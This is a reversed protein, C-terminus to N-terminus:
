SHENNQMEWYSAIAAAQSEAIRATRIEYELKLKLRLREIAEMHQRKVEGADSPPMHSTKPTSSIGRLPTSERPCLLDDLSASRPLLSESLYSSIDPNRPQSTHLAKDPGSLCADKNKLEALLKSKEEVLTTERERLRLELESLQEEMLRKQRMLQMETLDKLLCLQELHRRESECHQLEVQRQTLMRHLHDLEELRGMLDEQVKLATVNAEEKALVKEPLSECIPSNQKGSDLDRILNILDNRQSQLARIQCSFSDRWHKSDHDKQELKVKLQLVAAEQERLKARLTSNESELMRNQELCIALRQKVIELETSNEPIYKNCHLSGLDSLPFNSSDSASRIFVLNSDTKNMVTNKAKRDKHLAEQLLVNERSYLAKTEKMDRKLKHLEEALERDQLRIPTGQGSQESSGDDVPSAIPLQSDNSSSHVSLATEGDYTVNGQLATSCHLLDSSEYATLFHASLEDESDLNENGLRNEFDHMKNLNDLSDRVEVSKETEDTKITLTINEPYILRNLDRQLATIMRDKTLLSAKMLQIQEELMDQNGRNQQDNEFSEKPKQASKLKTIEQELVALASEKEVLMLQLHHVVRDNSPNQAQGTPNEVLDTQTFVTRQPSAGQSELRSLELGSDLSLQMRQANQNTGSQKSNEAELVKQINALEEQLHKKEEDQAMLQMELAEYKQKIQLNVTQMSELETPLKVELTNKNAASSLKSNENLFNSGKDFTELSYQNEVNQETDSFFTNEQLLQMQKQVSENSDIKINNDSEESTANSIDRNKTFEFDENDSGVDSNALCFFGENDGLVSGLDLFLTLDSVSVVEEGEARRELLWQTVRNLKHRVEQCDQRMCRGDFVEWISRHEPLNRGISSGAQAEDDGSGIMASAMLPTTLEWELPLDQSSQQSMDELEELFRERASNTDSVESRASLLEDGDLDTVKEGGSKVEVAPSSVEGTPTADVASPTLSPSVSRAERNNLRSQLEHQVKTHLGRAQTIEIQHLLVDRVEALEQNEKHLQEVTEGLNEQGEAIDPMVDDKTDKPSSGTSLQNHNRLSSFPGQRLMKLDKAHRKEMEKRAKQLAKTFKHEWEYKVAQVRHAYNQELEQEFNQQKTAFNHALEVEQQRLKGVYHEELEDRVTQIKKELEASTFLKSSSSEEEINALSMFNESKGKTNENPIFQQEYCFNQEIQMKLSEDKSVAPLQNNSFTFQQQKLGQHSPSKGVSLNPPWVSPRIQGDPEEMVFIDSTEPQFGEEVESEQIPHINLVHMDDIVHENEIEPQFGEVEEEVFDPEENIKETILVPTRLPKSQEAVFGEIVPLKETPSFCDDHSLVSVSPYPPCIDEVGSPRCENTENRKQMHMQCKFSNNEELLAAIKNQLEIKETDLSARSSEAKSFEIDNEVHIELVKVKEKLQSNNLKLDRIKEEYEEKLAEAYKSHASLNEKLISLENNLENTDTRHRDAADKLVAMMEEERQNATDKLSLIEDELSNNKLELERRMTGMEQLKSELVLVNSHNIDSDDMMSARLRDLENTAVCCKDELEYLRSEYSKELQQTEKAHDIKMEELHRKLRDVELEAFRRKEEIDSLQIEFNQELSVREKVSKSQLENIQRKQEAVSKELSMCNDELESTQIEHLRKLGAVACEHNSTTKSLEDKFRIVDSNSAQLSLELEALQHEYVDKSSSAKSQLSELEKELREKQQESKIIKEEVQSIQLEFMEKLEDKGQHVNRTEEALQCTLRKTKAEQEALKEQMDGMCSDFNSKLMEAEKHQIDISAKATELEEQLTAISTDRQDVESRLDNIEKQHMDIDHKLDFVAAEKGELVQAMQTLKENLQKIEVAYQTNTLDQNDLDIELGSINAKLTENEAQLSELQALTAAQEEMLIEFKDSVKKLSVEGQELKDNLGAIEFIKEDALIAQDVLHSEKEQVINTLHSLQGEMRSLEKEMKELKELTIEVSQKEENVQGILDSVKGEKQALLNEMEEMQSMMNAQQNASEKLLLETKSALLDKEQQVTRHQENLEQVLDDKEKIEEELKAMQSAQEVLAEDKQQLENSLSSALGQICEVNQLSCTLKNELESIHVDKETGVLRLRDQADKLAMESTHLSDTVEAAQKEFYEREKELKSCQNKIEMLEVQLKEKTQIETQLTEESTKMKELMESYAISLNEHECEVKVYQQKIENLEEEVIEKNKTTVELTQVNKELKSQIESCASQLIKDKNEAELVQEKRQILEEELDCKANTACQLETETKRLKEQIETYAMQLLEHKEEIESLQQKFLALEAVTNDKEQAIVQLAQETDGLKIQAESHATCYSEQINEFEQIHQKMEILEGEVCEKEKMTHELATETEKCKSAIAQTAQKSNSRELDLDSELQSVLSRLIELDNDKKSFLAKLGEAGFVDQNTDNSASDYVERLAHLEAELTDVKEKNSRNSTTLDEIEVDKENVAVSLQNYQSEISTLSEKMDMEKVFYEDNKNKLDVLENNVEKLEKEKKFAEGKLDELEINKESVTMTLNAVKEEINQQAELIEAERLRSRDKVGVLEQQLNIVIDSLVASQSFKQELLDELEGELIQIKGRLEWLDCESLNRQEKECQLASELQKVESSLQENEEQFTKKLTSCIRQQEELAEESQQLEVEKEQVIRQLRQWQSVTNELQAQLEEQCKDREALQEEVKRLASLETQHREAESAKVELSALKAESEEETRRHEQQLESLETQTEFLSKETEKLNETLEVVMKEAIKLKTRQDELEEALSNVQIAFAEYENKSRELIMEEGAAKLDKEPIVDCSPINVTHDVQSTYSLLKTRISQMMSDVDAKEQKAIELGQELEKNKNLVEERHSQEMKLQHEVNDCKSRLTEMASHMAEMQEEMQDNYYHWESQEVGHVHKASLLEDQLSVIQDACKTCEEEKLKLADKSTKLLLELSEKDAQLADFNASLINNSNINRESAELQETIESLKEDKSSLAKKMEVHSSQFSDLMEEMQMLKEDQKSMLSNKEQLAAQLEAVKIKEAKTAETANQVAAESKQIISQLENIKNNLADTDVSYKNELEVYHKESQVQKDSEKDHSLKLQELEAKMKDFDVSSLHEMSLKEELNCKELELERLHSLCESYKAALTDHETQLSGYGSLCHNLNSVQEELEEKVQSLVQTQSLESEHAQRLENLELELDSLRQAQEAQSKELQMELRSCATQLDDKEAKIADQSNLLASIQASQSEISSQLVQERLAREQDRLVWEQERSLWEQERAKWSQECTTLEKEKASLAEQISGLEFAQDGKIMDTETEAQPLHDQPINHPSKQQMTKDEQTLHALQQDKCTIIEQLQLMQSKADQLARASSDSHRLQEELTQDAQQLQTQLQYVHQVLANVQAHVTTDLQTNGLSEFLSASLQSLLADREALASEMESLGSHGDDLSSEVDAAEAVQKKKVESKQIASDLALQKGEMAEELETIRQKAQALKAELFISSRVDSEESSWEDGSTVSFQDSDSASWVDQVDSLQPPSLGKGNELNQEGKLSNEAGSNTTRQRDSRKKKAKRKQFAALKEKGAELKKQRDEM